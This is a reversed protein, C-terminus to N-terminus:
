SIAETEHPETLLYSREPHRSTYVVLITHRTSTRGRNALSKVWRKIQYVEADLIKPKRIGDIFKM